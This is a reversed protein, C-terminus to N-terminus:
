PVDRADGGTGPTPPGEWLEAVPLAVGEIALLDRKIALLTERSGFWDGGYGGISGNGAVVRHCPIALGIPNRGIAGGVARAAGRRGIATAVRGYSTATGWPVTRVAGLVARDWDSGVVLDIPVTELSAPSGGLFADVAAVARDLMPHPQRTPELRTRRVVDAVIVDLPALVALAVLGRASAAIAIPGWPAPRLAFSVTGGSVGVDDRSRRATAGADDVLAGPPSSREARGDVTGAEHEAGLPALLSSM